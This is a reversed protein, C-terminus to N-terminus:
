NSFSVAQAQLVKVQTEAQTKSLEVLMNIQDSMFKMMQVTASLESEGAM